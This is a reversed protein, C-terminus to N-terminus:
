PITTNPPRAWSPLPVHEPNTEDPRALSTADPTTIAAMLVIDRETEPMKEIAHLTVRTMWCVDSPTASAPHTTYLQYRDLNVPDADLEIVIERSLTEMAAAYQEPTPLRETVDSASSVLVKYLLQLYQEADADSMQAITIRNMVASIDVLGFCNVPVLEDLLRTFLQLYLLRDAPTLRALGSSMLAERKGEDLFIADLARAGGPIRREIVPNNVVKELWAILIRAKESGEAVGQQSLMDDLGGMEPKSPAEVNPPNDPLRDGFDQHIAASASLSLLLAVSGALWPLNRQAAQTFQRIM